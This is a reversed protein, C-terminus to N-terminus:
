RRAPVAVKAGPALVTFPRPTVTSWSGDEHEVRLVLEHLGPALRGTDLITWFGSHRAYVGATAYAEAVDARVLGIHRGRAVERGDVDYALTRIGATSFTWGSVTVTPEAPVPTATSPFDIDTMARRPGPAAREWPLPTDPMSPECPPALPARPRSYRTLTMGVRGADVPFSERSAYRCALLAHLSSPLDDESWATILWTAAQGRTALDVRRALDPEGFVGFLRNRTPLYRALSYTLNGRYVLVNSDDSQSAIATAAGKWDEKVSNVNFRLGMAMAVVVPPVVIWRWLRLADLAAAVAFFQAFSFFLQYRPWLISHTRLVWYMAAVLVLPGLANLLLM